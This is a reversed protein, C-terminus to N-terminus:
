YKLSPIFYIGPFMGTMVDAPSFLWQDIDQPLPGSFDRAPLNPDHGVVYREFMDGFNAPQGSDSGFNTGM